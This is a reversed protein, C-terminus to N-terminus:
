LFFFAKYGNYYKLDKYEIIKYEIGTPLTFKSSPPYYIDMNFQNVYILDTKEEDKCIFSIDKNQLPINIENLMFDVPKSYNITGETYIEMIYPQDVYIPETVMDYILDSVLVM